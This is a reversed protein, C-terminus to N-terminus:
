FGGLSSRRERLYKMEPSDEPPLYFPLDALKDDPIPVRFRDRFAKIADLDMKKLQHAINKGEGIPGLGHEADDGLHAALVRDDDVALRADDPHRVLIRRPELEGAGM